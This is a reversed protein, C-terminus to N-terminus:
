RRPMPPTVNSFLSILGETLTPHTFIADRLITYPLGALMAVQVTAMVEGAGVGLMTFGLIKDTKTDILAKM